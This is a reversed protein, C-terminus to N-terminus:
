ESVSALRAASSSNDKTAMPLVTQGGGGSNTVSNNPANVVTTNGGNQMYERSIQAAASNSRELIAAQQPKKVPKVGFYQESAKLQDPEIVTEGNPKYTFFVKEPSTSVYGYQLETPYTPPTLKAIERDIKDDEKVLEDNDHKFREM